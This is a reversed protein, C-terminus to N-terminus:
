RCARPPVCARPPIVCARKRRVMFFLPGFSIRQLDNINRTQAITSNAATVQELQVLLDHAADSDISSVSSQELTMVSVPGADIVPFRGDSLVASGRLMSESLQEFMRLQDPQFTPQFTPLQPLPAEVDMLYLGDADGAPIVAPTNPEGFTGSRELTDNYLGLANDTSLRLDQMAGTDRIDLMGRRKWSPGPQSVDSRRVRQRVSASNVDPSGPVDRPSTRPTLERSRYREDDASHSLADGSMLTDNALASPAALLHLDEKDLLARTLRKIRADKESRVRQKNQGIRRPVQLALVRPTLRPRATPQAAADCTHLLHHTRHAHHALIPM